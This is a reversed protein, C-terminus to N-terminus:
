PDGVTRHAQCSQCNIGSPQTDGDLNKISQPIGRIEWQQLATTRSRGSDGLAGQPVTRPDWLLLWSFLELICPCSDRGWYGKFAQSAPSCQLTLSVTVHPPKLWPNPLSATDDCTDYSLTNMILLLGQAISLTVPSTCNQLPLILSLDNVGWPTVEHLPAQLFM